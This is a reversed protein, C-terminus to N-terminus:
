NNTNTNNMIAIMGWNHRDNTAKLEEEERQGAEVEVQAADRGGAVKRAEAVQDPNDKVGDEPPAKDPWVSEVHEQWQLDRLRVVNIQANLLM